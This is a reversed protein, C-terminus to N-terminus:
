WPVEMLNVIRRAMQLMGDNTASALSQGMEPSFEAQGNIPIAEPSLPIEQQALTQGNRLDEWKVRVVWNMQLQRPDDYRTEGLASKRVSVIEGTLRTDAELGKALRYNTRKTIEQQVAETLQFELGRRNSTNEFVPVAVTKIDRSFSPGVTYGCGTLTLSLCLGFLGRRGIRTASLRHRQAAVHVGDVFPTKSDYQVDHGITQHCEKKM